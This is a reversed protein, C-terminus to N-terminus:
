SARSQAIRQLASYPAGTIGRNLSQVDQWGGGTEDCATTQCCLKNSMVMCIGVQARGDSGCNPGNDLHHVFIKCHATAIPEPTVPHNGYRPFPGRLLSRITYILAKPYPPCEFSSTTNKYSQQHANRSGHSTKHNDYGQITSATFM